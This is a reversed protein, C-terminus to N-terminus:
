LFYQKKEKGSFLFISRWKEGQFLIREVKKGGYIQQERRRNNKKM